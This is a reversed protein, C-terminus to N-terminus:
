PFHISTLPCVKPVPVVEVSKWISPFYGERFSANFIAALPDCIIPAFEKLLWNPLGDPGSSKHMNIRLLQREVQSPQIVYQDSYDSTLSSLSRSDFPPLHASMSVFFSNLEDLISLNPYQRQLDLFPNTGTHKSNVFQKTNKWWSHSDAYLMDVKKEYYKKRLCAVM